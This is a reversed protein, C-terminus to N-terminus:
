SSPTAAVPSSPPASWGRAAASGLTERAASLDAALQKVAVLDGAALAGDLRDVIRSLVAGASQEFLPLVATRLSQREAFRVIALVLVVAIVLMLIATVAVLLFGALSVMTDGVMETQNDAGIHVAAGVLGDGISQFSAM